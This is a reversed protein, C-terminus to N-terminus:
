ALNGGAAEVLCFQPRDQQIGGGFVRKGEFGLALGVPLSIRQRHFVDIVPKGGRLPLTGRGSQSFICLYCCPQTTLASIAPGLGANLHMQGADTERM